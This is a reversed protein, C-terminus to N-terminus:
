KPYRLKYIYCLASDWSCEISITKVFILRKLNPIPRTSMVTHINFNKEIIEGVCTLTTQSFCVSNILIVTASNFSTELFSGLTFQLKREDNYFEPFNQQTQQALLVSSQYLEPLFEIGHAERVPTKLFFQAVIKGNGSGLDFFIDQNTLSINAILKNVSHSIIEGQTAGSDLNM